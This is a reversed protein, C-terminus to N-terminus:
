IIIYCRTKSTPQGLYCEIVLNKNGGDCIPNNTRAATCGSTDTANLPCSFNSYYGVGQPGPGYRSPDSPRIM